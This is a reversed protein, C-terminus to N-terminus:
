QRESKRSGCLGVFQELQAYYRAEDFDREDLFDGDILLMPIGLESEIREKIVRATSAYFPCNRQNLHVVGHVNFDRCMRLAGRVRYEGPGHGHFNLAWRAERQLPLDSRFQEETPETCFRQVNLGGMETIVAVGMKALYTFSDVFLPPTQLWLLRLREGPVAAYGKAVREKLEDRLAHLYKVLGEPDAAAPYIRLSDRGAMPSPVAKIIEQVEMALQMAQWYHEQLERVRDEDYRLGSIQELLPIMEAYQNAVYDVAAAFDDGQSDVYYGADVGVFPVNFRQKLFYNRQYFPVCCFSDGYLLNPPPVDGALVMGIGARTSTCVDTSFGERNALDIYKGADRFRQQASSDIRITVFDMSQLLHAPPRADGYAVPRRDLWHQLMWKNYDRMLLYMAKNSSLRSADSSEEIKRIRNDYTTIQQAINDAIADPM